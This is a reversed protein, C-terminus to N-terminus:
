DGFFELAGIAAEDEWRTRAYTDPLKCFLAGFGAIAGKADVFVGEDGLRRVAETLKASRKAVPGFKGEKPVVRYAPVSAREEDTLMALIYAVHRAPINLARGIEAATTVSGEPVFRAARLVARKMLRFTDSGSLPGTRSL